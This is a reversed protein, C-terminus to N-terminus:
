WKNNGSEKVKHCAKLVGYFRGSRNSHVCFIRLSFHLTSSIIMSDALWNWQCLWWSVWESAFLKFYSAILLLLHCCVNKPCAVNYTSCIVCTMDNESIFQFIAVFFFSHISLVVFVDSRHTEQTCTIVCSAGCGCLNRHWIDIFHPKTWRM